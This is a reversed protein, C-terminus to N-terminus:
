ANRLAFEIMNQCQDRLCVNQHAANQLLAKVLHVELFYEFIQNESCIQNLGEAPEQIVKSASELTWPEVVYITADDQFDNISLLVQFLDM